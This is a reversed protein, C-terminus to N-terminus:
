AAPRLACPEADRFHPAEAEGVGVAAAYQHSYFLALPGRDSDHQRRVQERNQANIPPFCPRRVPSKRTLAFAPRDLCAHQLPCASVSARGGLEAVQNSDMRQAGLKAVWRSSAPVSM